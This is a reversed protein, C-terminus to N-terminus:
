LQEKNDLGHEEHRHSIRSTLPKIPNTIRTAISSNTLTKGQPLGNPGTAVSTDSSSTAQTQDRSADNSTEHPKADYDSTGQCRRRRDPM